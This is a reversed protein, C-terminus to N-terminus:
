VADVAAGSRARRFAGENDRNNDRLHALVNKWTRVDNTSTPISIKQKAGKYEREYVFHKRRRVMTYGNEGLFAKVSKESAKEPVVSNGGAKKTRKSKAKTKKVFPQLKLATTNNGALKYTSRCSSPQKGYKHFTHTVPKLLAPSSHDDSSSTEDASDDVVFMKRPTISPKAPVTFWGDADDYDVGGKGNGSVANSNKAADAAAATTAATHASAAVALARNEESLTTARGNAEDSKSREIVATQKYTNLVPDCLEFDALALSIKTQLRAMAETHRRREEAEEAAFAARVQRALESKRTAVAAEAAYAADMYLVAADREAKAVAKSDVLQKKSVGFLWSKIEAPMQIDSWQGLGQLISTAKTTAPRELAPPTSMPAVAPLETAAFTCDTFATEFPMQLPTATVPSTPMKFGFGSTTSIDMGMGMGMGMVIGMDLALAPVPAAPAASAVAALAPASAAEVHSRAIGDAIVPALSPRGSGIPVCSSAARKTPPSPVAAPVAAPSPPAAPPLTRALTPAPLAAAASAKNAISPQTKSSKGVVNWGGGGDGGGDDTITGANCDGVNQDNSGDAAAATTCAKQQQQTKKKKALAAAVAAKVISPSGLTHEAEKISAESMIGIRLLEKHTHRTKAPGLRIVQKVHVQAPFPSGAGPLKKQSKWAAPDINIGPASTAVFEGHLEWTDMNFLYIPTKGVKISQLDPWYKRGLGFLSSSLCEAVTKSSCPFLFGAVVSSMPMSASASTRLSPLPNLLKSTGGRGATANRVAQTSVYRNNARTVKPLQEDNLVVNVIYHRCDAIAAPTGQMAVERHGSTTTTRAIDIHAGTLDQLQKVVSGHTGIVKGITAAPVLMKEPALPKLESCADCQVSTPSNLLTCCACNWGPATATTAGMWEEPPSSPSGGYVDVFSSLPYARQDAADIRFVTGGDATGEEPKKKPLKKFEESVPAPEAFSKSAANAKETKQTKQTKKGGSATTATAAASSTSVSKSSSSSHAKNIKVALAAIVYSAPLKIQEDEWGLLDPHALVFQRLGGPFAKIVAADKKRKYFSALNSPIGTQDQQEAVWRQLNTATRRHLAEVAACREAAVLREVAEHAATFKTKGKSLKCECCVQPM